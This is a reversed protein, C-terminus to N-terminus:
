THSNINVVLRRHVIVESSGETAQISLTQVIKTLELALAELLCSNLTVNSKCQLAIAAKNNIGYRSGKQPCAISQRAELIITIHALTDLIFAAFRMTDIWDNLDWYEKKFTHFVCTVHAVDFLALSDTRIDNQGLNVQGFSSM